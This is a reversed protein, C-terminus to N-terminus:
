SPLSGFILLASKASANPVVAPAANPVEVTVVNTSLADPTDSPPLVPKVANTDASKNATEKIREGRKRAIGDKAVAGANTITPKKIIVEM